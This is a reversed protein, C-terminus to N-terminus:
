GLRELLALLIRASADWSYRAAQARANASRTAWTAEDDLDRIARVFGSMDDADVYAAATGGVERFVPIDSVVVPTGVGMAEVLPIGFGEDRSASVLATAGRLVERYTADDAGDHFVLTGGGALATLRVREGASVRSMLHLEHDPLQAMARALVGVNKYPMFSGMYV